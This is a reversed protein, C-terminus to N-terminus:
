YLWRVRITAQSENLSASGRVGQPGSNNDLNRAWLELQDGLAVDFTQSFNSYHNANVSSVSVTYDILQTANHRAMAAQSQGLGDGLIIHNLHVEAAIPFQFEDSGTVWLGAPDYVAVYNTLLVEAGQAIGQNANMAVKASITENHSIVHWNSGRFRLRVFDTSRVGIWVLGGGDNVHRELDVRAPTGAFLRLIIEEDAVGNSSDPLTFTATGGINLNYINDTNPALETGSWHTVKVIEPRDSIQIQGTVATLASLVDKPLKHLLGDLFGLRQTACEAAVTAPDDAMANLEATGPASTGLESQIFQIFADRDGSDSQWVDGTITAADIDNKVDEWQIPCADVLRQHLMDIDVPEVQAQAAAVFTISIVSICLKYLM